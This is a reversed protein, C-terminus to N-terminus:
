CTPVSGIPTPPRAHLAARGAETLTIGIDARRNDPEPVGDATAVVPKQDGMATVVILSAPIGYSVLRDRVAKARALSIARRAAASGTRDSHGNVRIEELGGGASRHIWSVVFELAEDNEKDIAASGHAFFYIQPLMCAAAPRATSVSLLAAAAM